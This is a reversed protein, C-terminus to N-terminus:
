NTAQFGYQNIKAWFQNWRGSTQVLCRLSIVKQAGDLKWKMGSKCLRQKIITKCAAETIGSGIPLHQNVFAYYEMRHKNNEFYTVAKKVKEMRDNSLNLTQWKRLQELIRSAAGKKHKLDHCAENLWDKGQAHARTGSFVAEFVGTLYESAHYFDLIQLETHKELFTWNDPAGDAVGLYTAKPYLKKVAAIEREFGIMFKEKGYEPAAGCYVTCMRDGVDDYLGITGIMAERYSGNDMRITTGDLGFSVMAVPRKMELVEYNWAEEKMEVISGVMDALGKVFSRAIPRGHNESLDRVVEQAGLASYKNSVIKAFRPTSTGVIRAKEELPCYISGGKSTQYVCREVMVEGYPTQYVKPDISRKTYKVEGVIIPTGDADFRQLLEGTVLAGAENLAQLLAEEGDLMSQKLPVEIRVVVKGNERSMISASM